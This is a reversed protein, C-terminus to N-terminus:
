IFLFFSSGEFHNETVIYVFSVSIAASTSNFLAVLFSHAFLQAWTFIQTQSKDWCSPHAAAFKTLHWILICLIQTRTTKLQSLVGKMGTVRFWLKCTELVLNIYCLDRLCLKSKHHLNSAATSKIIQVSDAISHLNTWLFVLIPTIEIGSQFYLFSEHFKDILQKMKFNPIKSHVFLISEM